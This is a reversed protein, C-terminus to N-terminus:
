FVCKTNLLRKKKRFDHQKHSLTSFYQVAPCAVSLIIRRTREAHQNVLAVSVCQSYTTIIAKARDSHNRSRGQIKCLVYM